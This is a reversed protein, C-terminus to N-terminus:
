KSSVTSLHRWRVGEHKVRGRHVVHWIRLRGHGDMGTSVPRHGDGLGHLADLPRGRGTMQM